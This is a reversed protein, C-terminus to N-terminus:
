KSTHRAFFVHPRRLQMNVQHVRDVERGMKRGITQGKEQISKGKNSAHSHVQKRATIMNTEMHMQLSKVAELLIDCDGLALGGTMM